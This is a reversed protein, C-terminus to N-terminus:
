TPAVAGTLRGPGRRLRRAPVQPPRIRGDRGRVRGRGGDWDRHGGERGGRPQLDAPRGRGTEIVAVSYPLEDAFAPYYLQHMLIYSWVTGRGSLAAWTTNPSLCSWCSTTPPFRLRACDDCRQMVFEQRKAAEWYPASVADVIPLPKAYSDAM